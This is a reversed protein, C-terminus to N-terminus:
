SGTRGAPRCTESKPGTEISAANQDDSSTREYRAVRTTSRDGYGVIM